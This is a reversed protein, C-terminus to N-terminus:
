THKILIGSNGDNSLAFNGTSYTGLLTLQAQQPGDIVTLTGSTLSAAETFSWQQSGYLGGVFGLGATGGAGFNFLDIQDGAAFGSIAGAFGALNDLALDGGTGAFGVTQGAAVSGAVFATGGSVTLGGAM